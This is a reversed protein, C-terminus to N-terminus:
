RDRDSDWRGARLLSSSSTRPTTQSEHASSTATGPESMNRREWEESSSSRGKNGAGDHSGIESSSSAASSRAM